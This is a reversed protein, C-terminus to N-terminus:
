RAISTTVGDGERNLCELLANMAGAQEQTTSGSLISNAILLNAQALVAEVSSNDGLGLGALAPIM